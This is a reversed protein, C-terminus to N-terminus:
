LGCASIPVHVAVGMFVHIDWGTNQSLPVKPSLAGHAVCSWSMVAAADRMHRAPTAQHPQATAHGGLGDETAATWLRCHRVSNDRTRSHHCQLPESPHCLHLATATPPQRHDHDCHSHHCLHQGCAGGRQGGSCQGRGGGTRRDHQGDGEQWGNM